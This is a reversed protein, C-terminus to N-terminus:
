IKVSVGSQLGCIYGFRSNGLCNNCLLYRFIASGLGVSVLRSLGIGYKDNGLSM